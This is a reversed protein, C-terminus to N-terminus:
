WTFEISDFDTAPTLINPTQAANLRERYKNGMQGDAAHNKIYGKQLLYEEFRSSWLGKEYGEQLADRFNEINLGDSAHMSKILTEHHSPIKGDESSQIYKKDLDHLYFLWEKASVCFAIEYFSIIPSLDKRKLIEITKSDDLAEFFYHTEDLFGKKHLQKYHLLMTLFAIGLTVGTGTLIPYLFSNLSTNEITPFMGHCIGIYFLFGVAIGIMLGDLSYVVTKHTLSGFQESNRIYDLIKEPKPKEPNESPKKNEALVKKQAEFATKLNPAITSLSEVISEKVNKTSEVQKELGPFDELLSLFEKGNEHLLRNFFKQYKKDKLVSALQPDKLLEILLSDNSQEHTLLSKRLQYYGAVLGVSFTAILGVSSSYFVTNTLNAQIGPIWHSMIAYATLAALAISVLLGASCIKWAKEQCSLYGEYGEIFSDLKQTYNINM